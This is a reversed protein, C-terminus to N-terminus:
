VQKAGKSMWENVLKMIVERSIPVMVVDWSTDGDANARDIAAAVAPDVYAEGLTRKHDAHHRRHVGLGRPDFMKHCVECEVKEFKIVKKTRVQTLVEEKLPALSLM